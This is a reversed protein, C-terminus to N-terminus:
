RHQSITQAAKRRRARVLHMAAGGLAALFATTGSFIIMKEFGFAGWSSHQGLKNEDYLTAAVTPMVLSGIGRIVSFLCFILTSTNPNAGAVDKAAGGWAPVMQGTLAFCVAFAYVKPLTDALGWATLSILGGCLGCLVATLPYSFDSVPGMIASGLAACLNFIALVLNQQTTSSTLSSAYQPLYLAVPLYSLSALLSSYCMLIFLPDRLAKWDVALWPPRQGKAPKFIPIRPRCFYISVSFVVATIMAWARCLWPFGGATLLGDILFPFVFGGVGIGSLIIGLAVGRRAHWWESLWIWVPTFLVANSIGVLIGQLVILHWVETAWSSILTCGCSVAGSIWLSPRIWEPYRKFFFIVAVPLMFQLGLQTTGVSSLASISEKQWPDHTELYVLITAFSYSYGWIFTELLFSVFVFLWAGKGGDVPALAAGDGTDNTDFRQLEGGTGASHQSGDDMEFREFDRPAEPAPLAVAPPVAVLETQQQTHAM